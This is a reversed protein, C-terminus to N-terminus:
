VGPRVALGAGAMQWLAVIQPVGLAHAGCTTVGLSGVLWNSLVAPLGCGGRGGQEVHVSGCRNAARTRGEKGRGRFSEVLSKCLLIHIYSMCFVCGVNARRAQRWVQALGHESAGVVTADLSAALGDVGLGVGSRGRM